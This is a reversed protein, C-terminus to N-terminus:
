TRGAGTRKASVTNGGARSTGTRRGAGAARATRTTRRPKTWTEDLFAAIEGTLREPQLRLETLSDAEILRANPLEDALMGADAFPHVPDRHHGLVLTPTRFTRRENRHPAIRGFFLGQLLAGGPGPEQRVLDLVVNGYHPLLGRPIARTVRAVLKMVPEGFTLAVLPPTFALASWLLANDLVPMEIVMGRLRMPAKAAIELATNAGLSTGMVVAEEIQLHDMLAIVQDAFFGMSYRWMDRPRDSEGHGLLDVTIVRNGRAALDEALPQHMLQSLLLGHVLILARSAAPSSKATRGRGGSATIAAPGGGYETYAIRQGDFQFSPM